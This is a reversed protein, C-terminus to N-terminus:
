SDKNIINDRQRLYPEPKRPSVTNNKTKSSITENMMGMMTSVVTVTKSVQPSSRPASTRSHVRRPGRSQNCTFSVSVLLKQNREKITTAFGGGGRPGAVGVVCSCLRGVRRKCQVIESMVSYVLVSAPEHLFFSSM